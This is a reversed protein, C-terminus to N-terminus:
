LQWVALLFGQFAKKTNETLVRIIATLKDANVSVVQLTGSSSRKICNKLVIFLVKDTHEM